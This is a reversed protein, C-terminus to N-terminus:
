IQDEDESECMIRCKHILRFKFAISYASDIILLLFAITLLIKLHEVDLM